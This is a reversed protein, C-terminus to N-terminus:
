VSFFSDYFSQCSIMCLFSISNSLPHFAANRLNEKHVFLACTCHDVNGNYYKAMANSHAIENKKKAFIDQFIMMM